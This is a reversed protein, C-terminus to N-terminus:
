SGTYGANMFDDQLPIKGESHVVEVDCTNTCLHIKITSAICSSVNGPWIAPVLHAQLQRCIHKVPM